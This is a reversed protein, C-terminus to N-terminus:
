FSFVLERVIIVSRDKVQVDPKGDRLDITHDHMIFEQWIPEGPTILRIRRTNAFAEFGGAKAVCQRVTMNALWPVSGQRLVHGLVLVSGKDAPEIKWTVQKSACSAMFVVFFVHLVWNRGLQHNMSVYQWM